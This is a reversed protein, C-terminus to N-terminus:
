HPPADARRAKLYEVLAPLVSLGIVAVIVLELHHLLGPFTSGLTYGTVTMSAIWGFGGVVNYAAFRRYPMRSVGAMVPVFTRVVPIFRALIIAKGGHRAYFAEATRLHKPNLLRGHPAQLLRPGLFKGLAYSCADGLIALPGLLANLTLLSLTGQAAYFGAILLLSDGPLFFVLAGTEAFIVLALAPYGGLAIITGPNRILEIAQSFWAM